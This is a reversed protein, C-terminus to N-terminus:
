YNMVTFFLGEFQRFFHLDFYWVMGILIIFWGLINGRLLEKKFVDVYTRFIPVDNEGMTNKRAITFLAVTSPFFGFVIGGLLTFGVWLINLYAFHTTWKCLQYLTSLLRGMRMEM